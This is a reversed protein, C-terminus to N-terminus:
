TKLRINKKARSIAEGLSLGEVDLNQAGDLESKPLPGYSASGGIKRAEALVGWPPSIGLERATAMNILFKGNINIHIPLEGINKGNLAQQIVNAVMKARKAEFSKPLLTALAGDEVDSVGEKSFAPKQLKKLGTILVKRQERNMQYLNTLYFAQSSEILSGMEGLSDEASDAISIVEIKKIFKIRKQLRVSHVGTITEAVGKDIFIGLSRFSFIEAFAEIDNLISYPADIFYFNKINSKNQEINKGIGQLEADFVIPSVVPKPLRKNVGRDSAVKAGIPGMTLIFQVNRDKLLEDFQKAVGAVTNDGQRVYNEPFVVNDIRGAEINANSIETKYLPLKQRESENGGDLLVGIIIGEPEQANSITSFLFIFCMVVIQRM